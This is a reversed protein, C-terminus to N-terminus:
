KAKSKAPKLETAWGSIAWPLVEPEEQPAPAATANIPATKKAVKKQSTKATTSATSAAPAVKQPGETGYFPMLAPSATAPKVANGEPLSPEAAAVSVKPPVDAILEPKPQYPAKATMHVISYGRQKLSALIAPLAKATVVKIDHFLVIGGKSQEIQQLTFKTLAGSDHIYSDNSVADVSFTAINRDRLYSVLKASDSLGPFRFFPAVPTGAAAAVAEFGREIELHAKDRRVTRLNFPHNMTHTGLTHGRAVIDKVTEPYARAMRGVSFFTAKVCFRDLTDLVSKTIWPMPGDDFTLVVEKPALFRKQKPQPTFEGYVPGGTTDIEVTRAVNLADPNACAGDASQALAPGSCFFSAAALAFARSLITRLSSLDTHLRAFVFREDLKRHAGLGPL